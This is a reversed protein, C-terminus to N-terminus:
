SSTGDGRESPRSTFETQLRERLGLDANMTLAAFGVDVRDLYNVLYLLVLLPVLRVTARRVM